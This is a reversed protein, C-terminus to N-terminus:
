NNQKDLHTTSNCYEKTLYSKATIKYKELRRYIASKSIGLLEAALETQGNVQTLAKDLLIKEAQAFTMLELNDNQKILSDKAIPSITLDEAQIVSIDKLLVVRELINKLERLNGPYDYAVLLNLASNSLAMATKHYKQCLQSLFHKALDPIDDRRDKLSPVNLEVTNLRYYLDQRFRGEKILQNFDENSASIIRANTTLTQSSGVREFEGSELVRLLKAQQSLPITALEDLFLLGDQALEFRGVRSKDAGTFAGKVHGFMESEFLNESIAGMTVSVFSGKNVQTSTQRNKQSLSQNYVYHALTSKGTGNEGTFLITATTNAISDLQSLLTQMSTSKAILVLDNSQEEITQKLQNNQQQLHSLKLNQQIVQILRHNDWPKEIFDKAGQQLAKVVLDVSSWATMAIVPLHENLAKVKRLFYLGEEGSTTDRAYNMDLLVLDVTHNKIHNLGSVPSDAEIVDFYYNALLFRASLRIDAKDDIILIKQKNSM